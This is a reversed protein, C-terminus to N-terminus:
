SLQTGCDQIAHIECAGFSSTGLDQLIECFELHCFKHLIKCMGLNHHRFSGVPPAVPCGM